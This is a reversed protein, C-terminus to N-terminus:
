GDHIVHQKVLIVVVVKSGVIVLEVFCFSDASTSVGLMLLYARHAVIPLNNRDNLIGLFLFFLSPLTQVGNSKNYSCGVSQNQQM